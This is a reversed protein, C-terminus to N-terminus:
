FPIGDDDEEKALKQLIKGYTRDRSRAYSHAQNEVALRAEEEQLQVRWNMNLQIYHEFDMPIWAKSRAMPGKADRAYDIRAQCLRKGLNCHCTVAMTNRNGNTGPVWQGNDIELIHPVPVWGSNRCDSCVSRDDSKLKADEAAKRMSRSQRVAENIAGLHETRWKPPASTMKFTAANLEDVTYGAAEFPTEWALLMAMDGENTLGFMTAHRQAWQDFGVISM